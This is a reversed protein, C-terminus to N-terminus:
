LDDYLWRYRAYTTLSRKVYRRTEPFAQALDKWRAVNGEGGNYAALVRPLDGGFRRQLYGLYAAGVRINYDPDRLDGRAFRGRKAMWGATEPMVQMLGVAGARSTAEPSFGSEVRMVAVVLLPDVSASAAAAVVAERYPFPYVVKGGVRLLPDRAVYIGLGLVFGAALLRAGRGPGRRAPRWSTGQGPPAPSAPRAQPVIRDRATL